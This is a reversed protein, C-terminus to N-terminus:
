FSYYFVHFLICKVMWRSSSGVFKRFIINFCMFIICNEMCKSSSCVFKKFNYYLEHFFIYLNGYTYEFFTCIKYFIHYFVHFLVCFTLINWWIVNLIRFNKLLCECQKLVKIQIWPALQINKHSKVMNYHNKYIKITKYSLTQHNTNTKNSIKYSFLFKHFSIRSVNCKLNSLFFLTSLNSLFHISITFFHM